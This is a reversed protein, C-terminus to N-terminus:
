SMPIQNHQNLVDTNPQPYPQGGCGCGNDGKDPTCGCWFKAVDGLNQDELCGSRNLAPLHGLACLSCAKGDSGGAPHCVQRLAALCRGEETDWLVMRAIQMGRYPLVQAQVGARGTSHPGEVTVSFAGDAARSANLTVDLYTAGSEEGVSFRASQTFAACSSGPAASRRRTNSGLQMRRFGTDAM